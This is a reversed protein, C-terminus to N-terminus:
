ELCDLKLGEASTLHDLAHMCHQSLEYKGKGHIQKLKRLISEFEASFCGFVNTKFFRM